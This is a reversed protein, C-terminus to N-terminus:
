PRNAVVTCNVVSRDGTAVICQDGNSAGTAGTVVDQPASTPGGGVFCDNAALNVYDTGSTGLVLQFQASATYPRLASTGTPVVAISTVTMTCEPPKLANAAVGSSSYGLPSRAVTASATLVAHAGGLVLVGAAAAAATM